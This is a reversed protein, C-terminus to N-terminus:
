QSVGLLKKMVKQLLQQEIEDGHLQMLQETAREVQLSSLVLGGDGEDAGASRIDAMVQKLQQEDLDLAGELLTKTLLESRQTAGNAIADVLTAIVTAYNARSERAENESEAISTNLSNFQVSWPKTMDAPIVKKHRYWLHLDLARNIMTNAAQRIWTARRAAQISQQFFGGEGLGGSLLDAWGMMTVDIGLSATLRKLHFMIDEIDSINPDTRNTDITMQGKGGHVPILSNNILPRISKLFARREQAEQNAKLQSAIYNSYEAAAIPDLGEMPVLMMRDIRSANKRSGRMSDIAEVLDRWPEFSNELFSHGYDQTEVIMQDYVDDFLSYMAAGFHEPERTPDAVHYPVKMSVLAWPPALQVTGTHQKDRLYQNTYGALLGSRTYERVFQPLTYYSSEFHTIGQGDKAYPRIYSVGYTCMTKAWNVIHANIMKMVGANLESILADHEPATSKLEVIIGTKSDASLAHTLHMDIADTVISDTAMLSFTAYRSARDKSIGVNNLNDSEDNDEPDRNYNGYVGSLPSDQVFANNHQADNENFAPFVTSAFAKFSAVIANKSPKESM